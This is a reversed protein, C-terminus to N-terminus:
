PHAMLEIRWIIERFINCAWMVTEFLNKISIFINNTVNGCFLLCTVLGRFYCERFLKSGLSNQKTSDLYIGRYIGCSCLKWIGKISTSFKIFYPWPRSYKCPRNYQMETSFITPQFNFPMAITEFSCLSYVVFSCQTIIHLLCHCHSSFYIQAM